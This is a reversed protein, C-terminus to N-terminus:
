YNTQSDEVDKRDLDRDVYDNLISGAEFGLLCIMISKLLM